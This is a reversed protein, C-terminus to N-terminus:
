MLLNIIKIKKIDIFQLNDFFYYFNESKIKELNLNVERDLCKKINIFYKYILNEVM